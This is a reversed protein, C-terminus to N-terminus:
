KSNGQKFAKKWSVVPNIRPEKWAGNSKQVLRVFKPFKRYLAIASKNQLDVNRLESCGGPSNAVDDRTYQNLVKNTYGHTLLNLVFYYDSIFPVGYTFRFNHIDITPIYMCFVHVVRSNTQVYETHNNSFQRATIGTLINDKNTHELLDTVMNRFDSKDMPYYKTAKSKLDHIAFKIDDDLMIVYEIGEDICYELIADRTESMGDNDNLDIPLLGCGFYEAVKLYKETEEERVFLYTRNMIEEPIVQLPGDNKILMESRKYSPIAIIYNKM